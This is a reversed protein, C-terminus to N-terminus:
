RTSRKTSLSKCDRPRRGRKPFLGWRSPEDVSTSRAVASKTSSPIDSCSSRMSAFSKLCSSRMSAFPKAPDDPLLAARLRLRLTESECEKSTHSANVIGGNDCM